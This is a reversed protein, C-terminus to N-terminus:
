HTFETVWFWAWSEATRGVVLRSVRGGELELDSLIMPKVLM